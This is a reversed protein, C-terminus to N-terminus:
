ARLANYNNNHTSQWQTQKLWYDLQKVKKVKDMQKFIAGTYSYYHVLVCFFFIIAILKSKSKINYILNVLKRNLLEFKKFTFM